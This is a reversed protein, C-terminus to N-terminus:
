PASRPSTQAAARELAAQYRLIDALASRRKRKPPRRNRAQELPTSWKLNGCQYHGDNNIRDISTGPPPLGVDALFEQFSRVLFQVGGGGYWPDRRNRCRYKASRYSNYARDEAEGRPRSRIGPEERERRLCGCSRVAGRLLDTAKVVKHGGCVCKCLWLTHRHRDSGAREAVTLRDFQQGMLNRVTRTYRERTM